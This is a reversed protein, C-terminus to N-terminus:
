STMVASLHEMLEDSVFPWRSSTAITRRRRFTTPLKSRRTFIRGRRARFTTAKQGTDFAGVDFSVPQLAQRRAFTLLM